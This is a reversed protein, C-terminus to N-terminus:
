KATERNGSSHFLRAIPMGYTESPQVTHTQTEKMWQLYMLDQLMNLFYRCLIGTCLEIAEYLKDYDYIAYTSMIMIKPTM